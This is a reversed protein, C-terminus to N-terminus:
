RRVSKGKRYAAIERSIDEPRFSKAKATAKGFAYLKDWRKKREIYMRAAERLLESRSRSEKGAVRDIDRLLTDQFSINVTVNSMRNNIYLTQIFMDLQVRREGGDALGELFGSERCSPPGNMQQLPILSQFVKLM